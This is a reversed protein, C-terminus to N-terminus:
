RYIYKSKPTTTKIPKVEEAKERELTGQVWGEPATRGGSTTQYTDGTTPNHYDVTVSPQISDSAPPIFGYDGIPKKEMAKKIVKENLSKLPKEILGKILDKFVAM